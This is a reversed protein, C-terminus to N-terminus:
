EAEISVNKIVKADSLFPVTVSERGGEINFVLNNDKLNM